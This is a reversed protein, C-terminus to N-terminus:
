GSIIKRQMVRDKPRTRKALGRPNKKKAVGPIPKYKKEQRVSQGDYKISPESQSLAADQNSIVNGIYSITLFSALYGISINRRLM